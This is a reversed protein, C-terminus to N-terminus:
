PINLILSDLLTTAMGLERRIRNELRARFRSSQNTRYYVQPSLDPNAAIRPWDGALANFFNSFAMLPQLLLDCAADNTLVAGAFQENHPAPAELVTFTSDLQSLVRLGAFDVSTRSQTVVKLLNELFVRDLAGAVLRRLLLHLSLDVQSGFLLTNPIAVAAPDQFARDTIERVFLPDVHSFLFLRTGAFDDPRLEVM